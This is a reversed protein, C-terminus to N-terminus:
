EGFVELLDAIATAANELKNRQGESLAVTHTALWEYNVEATTWRVGCNGCHRRRRTVGQAMMRTEIVTSENIAGCGPCLDGTMGSEEPNITPSQKIVEEYSLGRAIRQRICKDTMGTMEVLERITKGEIRIVQKEGM